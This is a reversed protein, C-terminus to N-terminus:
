PLRTSNLEGDISEPKNLAQLERRADDHSIDPSWGYARFPVNPGSGSSITRSPLKVEGDM